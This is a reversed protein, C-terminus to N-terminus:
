KEERADGHAMLNRTWEVVAIYAAVTDAYKHNGRQPFKM